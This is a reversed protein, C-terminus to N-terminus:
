DVQTAILKITLKVTELPNANGMATDYSDMTADTSFKWNWGIEIGSSSIVPLANAEVSEHYGDIATLMDDWSDFWVGNFFWDINPNAKIADGISTEALVVDLDITYDVEPAAKGATGAYNLKVTETKTTGPAILNDSNSSVVTDDYSVDFLDFDITSSEGFGWAAVRANDTAKVETVYKAFTGSIGCTSMLVAVLLLAALRMARNKKM